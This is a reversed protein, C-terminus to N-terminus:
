DDSLSSSIREVGSEYRKGDKSISLTLHEDIAQGFRLVSRISQRFEGRQKEIIPNIENFIDIIVKDTLTRNGGLNGTQWFFKLNKLLHSNEGKILAPPLLRICSNLSSSDLETQYSPSEKFIKKKKEEILNTIQTLLKEEEDKAKDSLEILREVDKRLPTHRISLLEGTKIFDALEYHLSWFSLNEPKNMKNEATTIEAKVKKLIPRFVRELDNIRNQRTEMLKSALVVGILTITGAVIWGIIDTWDAM